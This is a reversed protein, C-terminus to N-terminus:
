STQQAGFEAFAVVAFSGEVNQMQFCKTILNVTMPLIEAATRCIIEMIIIM